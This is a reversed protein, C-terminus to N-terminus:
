RSYREASLAEAEDELIGSALLRDIEAPHQLLQLNEDIPQDLLLPLSEPIPTEEASSSHQTIELPTRKQTISKDPIVPFPAQLSRGAETWRKLQRKDAIAKKRAFGSKAM